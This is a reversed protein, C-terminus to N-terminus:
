PAIGEFRIQGKIIRVIRHDGALVGFKTKDIAGPENNVETRGVASKYVSLTQSPASFQRDALSQLETLTSGDKSNNSDAFNWFRGLTVRLMPRRGRVRKM